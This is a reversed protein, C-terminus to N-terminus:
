RKSYDLVRAPANYGSGLQSVYWNGTDISPWGGTRQAHASAMQKAHKEDDAILAVTFLYYGSTPQKQYTCEFKKM